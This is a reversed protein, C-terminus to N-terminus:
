QDIIQFIVMSICPHNSLKVEEEGRIKKTYMGVKTYTRFQM